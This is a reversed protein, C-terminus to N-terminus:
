ALVGSEQADQAMASAQIERQRTADIISRIAARDHPHLMPGLDQCVHEPDVRITPFQVFHGNTTPGEAILHVGFRTFKQIM